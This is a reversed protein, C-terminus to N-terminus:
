PTFSTDNDVFIVYKTAIGSHAVNRAQNPTLYHEFRVLKFARKRAQSALSRAIHRPSGADICIFDFPPRTNAYLSDIARSTLSFRERPSMVITVSSITM